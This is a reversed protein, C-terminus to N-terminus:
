FKISTDSPYFKEALIYNKYEFFRYGTLQELRYLLRDKWSNGHKYQEPQYDFHWDQAAIRAQMVAPATGTFKLLDDVESYTFQAAVNRQIWTDSHWLRNFNKIKAQQKQPNKVWGYHYVAAPILAAKIKRGNKRFGQADGFSRVESNYRLVRIERRYWRRATGVYDYSGYFHHYNLLLAEIDTRESYHQMAQRIVSYDSEHLVEDAQLYIAWRSDSAVAAVAKDTEQALVQGGQRLSDDWVSHIIKIKPSAINEILSLTDDESKGVNVIVEDCLPLMSRISEVVPYDDLLANRVFTFGSVKVNLTTNNCM